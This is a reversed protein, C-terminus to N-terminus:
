PQGGACLPWPGHPDEAGRSAFHHLQSRQTGAQAQVMIVLRQIVVPFPQSQKHWVQTHLEQNAEAALNRQAAALKSQAINENLSTEM